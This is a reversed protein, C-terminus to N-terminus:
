WIRGHADTCLNVLKVLFLADKPIIHVLDQVNQCPARLRDVCVLVDEVHHIGDVVDMTMTTKKLITLETPTEQKERPVHGSQHLGKRMEERVFVHM